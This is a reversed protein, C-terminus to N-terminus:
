KAVRGSYTHDQDEESTDNFNSGAALTRRVLTDYVDETCDGTLSPGTSFFLPELAGQLLYDWLKGWQPIEDLHTLVLHTAGLDRGVAHANRLVSHDYAANLVLVRQEIKETTFFDRLAQNHESPGISMGPLDFYVFGGPIAPQTSAPYRVVPVGLAECFVPLVGPPNPRSFEATVVHGLRAKRFVDQGVWKCLATTRGCGSPGFFAARTLASGTWRTSAQRELERGVEVLARHLPLKSIDDWRPSEVLKGLVLESIRSAKLLAMLSPPVYAAQTSNFQAISVEKNEEILLATEAPKNAEGVQAIVELRPASWLKSLGQTEISKVSLVRATPGLRERILRAADEASKVVFRYSAGPILVQSDPNM